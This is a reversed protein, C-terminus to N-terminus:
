QKKQVNCCQFIWQNPPLLALPPFVLFHHDLHPHHPDQFTKDGFYILFLLRHTLIKLKLIEMLERVVSIWNVIIINSPYTHFLM